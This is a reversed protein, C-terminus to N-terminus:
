NYLTYVQIFTDLVMMQALENILVDTITLFTKLMKMLVVLSVRESGKEVAFTLGNRLQVCKEVM